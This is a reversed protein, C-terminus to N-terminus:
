VLSVDSRSVKADKKDAKKLKEELKRLKKNLKRIKKAIKSKDKKKGMNHMAGAELSVAWQSPRNIKNRSMM